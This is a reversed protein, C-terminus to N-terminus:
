RHAVGRAAHVGPLHRDPGRRARRGARGHLALALVVLAQLVVAYGVLPWVDDTSLLMERAPIGVVIVVPVLTLVRHRVRWALASLTTTLVLPAVVALSATGELLWVWPKTELRTGELTVIAGVVFVVLWVVPTLMLSVWAWTVLEVDTRTTRRAQHPEM